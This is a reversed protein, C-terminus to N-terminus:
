LRPDRVEITRRPSLGDVASRLLEGLMGTRAKRQFVPVPEGTAGALKAAGDLADEFNGLEDVLKLEQAEKGTFIRGDALPRLKEKDLKRATAVDTLFQEFVGDVFKQYFSREVTTMPRLPSGADKLPGSKITDVEIRALSLLEQVHPFESIVVISGTITGPSAYIKDCAVAVYFGGSAAITAM